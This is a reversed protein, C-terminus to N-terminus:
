SRLTARRPLFRGLFYASLTRRPTEPRASPVLGVTNPSVGIFSAFAARLEEPGSFWDEAAISWPRAFREIAQRGAASVAKLRPGINATNLYTIQEPIEFLPRDASNM